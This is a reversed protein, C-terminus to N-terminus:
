GGVEVRKRRRPTTLTGRKRRGLWEKSTKIPFLKEGNPLALYPLPDRPRRTWRKITETCRDFAAAVEDLTLHGDLIPNGAYKHRHDDKDQLTM